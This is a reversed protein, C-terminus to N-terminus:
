RWRYRGTRWVDRGDPGASVAPCRPQPRVPGAGIYHRGDGCFEVPLQNPPNGAAFPRDDPRRGPGPRAAGGVAPRDGAGGPIGHGDLGGAGGVPASRRGPRLALDGGAGGMLYAPRRRGLLWGAAGAAAALLVGVHLGSIALLHAAGAGRFRETMASPLSERKGLLLAAALASEPYPM